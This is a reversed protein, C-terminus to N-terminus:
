ADPSFQSHRLLGRASVDDVGRVHPAISYGKKAGAKLYGYLKQHFSQLLKDDDGAQTLKTDDVLVLLSTQAQGPTYGLGYFAVASLVRKFNSDQALTRLAEEVPKVVAQDVEDPFVTRGFRRGLWRRLETRDPESLPSSVVDLALLAPKEISFILRTDVVLNTLGAVSPLGFLRTSRGAGVAEWEKKEVKSAPCVFLHPEIAPPREIDCDQSIIVYLGTNLEAKFTLLPEDHPAAHIEEAYLPAEPSVLREEADARFADGHELELVQARHGFEPAAFVCGVVDGGYEAAGAVLEAGGAGAEDIFAEDVGGAVAVAVEGDGLEVAVHAAVVFEDRWGAVTVTGCRM